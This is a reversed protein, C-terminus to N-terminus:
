EDDEPPPEDDNTIADWQAEDMEPGPPPAARRIPTPQPPRGPQQAAQARERKPPTAPLAAMVKEVGNYDDNEGEKINLLIRCKKGLLDDSDFDYDDPIDRGRVGLFAATWRFMKSRSSFKQSSIGVVVRDEMEGKENEYPIHFEWKLMPGYVGNDETVAGLTANYEGEPLVEYTTRLIQVM